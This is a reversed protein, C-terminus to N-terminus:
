AAACEACATCSVDRALHARRLAQFADSNWGDQFSVKTLDAVIHGGDPRDGFCCAILRGHRDIHAQWVSWCPLPERMNDLRGPNGSGPAMGNAKAAGNMGFLPLKYTEDCYGAIEDIVAQMKVGQEGDFAISSAYIQCAYGEADRIRRAEKLNEIAKRWFGPHVQAVSALQEPSHFNISFKLSDLGAAMCERVRAPTATAGNTTLFVYSFGVDKAEKIAEPLWRCQFSEGIFFPAVEEVGFERMERLLRSYLARDMEGDDTANISKTCFTCKYPCSSTIEIKCSRPAPAIQSRVAVPISTVYDVRKTISM